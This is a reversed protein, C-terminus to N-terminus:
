RGLYLVSRLDDVPEIHAALWQPVLASAAHVLTVLLLVGMRMAAARGTNALRM